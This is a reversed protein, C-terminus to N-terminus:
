ILADTASGTVAAAKNIRFVDIMEHQCKVFLHRCCGELEPEESNLACLTEMGETAFRHNHDIRKFFYEVM